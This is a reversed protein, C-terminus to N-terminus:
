IYTFIGYMFGILNYYNSSILAKCIPACQVNRAGGITNGDQGGVEMGCPPPSFTGEKVDMSLYM